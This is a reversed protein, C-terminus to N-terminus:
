EVITLALQENVYEEVKAMIEEEDGSKVEMIEGDQSIHYLKQSDSVFAYAIRDLKDSLYTGDELATRVIDLSSAKLFYPVKLMGVNDM